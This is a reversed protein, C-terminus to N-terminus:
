PSGPISNTPVIPLTHWHFVMRGSLLPGAVTDPEGPDQNLPAFRASRAFELAAQDAESRGSGSLLVASFPEGTALVSLQVVSNSLIDRHQWSPLAPPALLPRAALPGELSLESRGPVPQNPVFADTGTIRLIPRDATLLPGALDDATFPQFARALQRADLSLTRAPESWDHPTNELPTFRLWASGSFGRLNPLAFLTPDRFMPLRQIQETLWPDGALDITTHIEPPTSQFRLGRGLWALLGIQIVLAALITLTWRRGSWQITELGNM